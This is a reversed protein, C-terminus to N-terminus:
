GFVDILSGVTSYVSRQPQLGASSTLATASSDTQLAQIRIRADDIKYSLEEIERKGAPTKASPCDLCDALQRQYRSIRAQLAAATRPNESGTKVVGQVAAASGPASIAGVTNTM